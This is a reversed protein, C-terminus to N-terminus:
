SLDCPSKCRKCDHHYSCSILASLASIDEFMILPTEIQGTCATPAPLHQDASVPAVTLVHWLAYSTLCYLHFNCLSWFMFLREAPCASVHSFSTFTLYPVYRIFAIVAGVLGLWLAAGYTARNRSENDNFRHRATVWLILAFIEAVIASISGM